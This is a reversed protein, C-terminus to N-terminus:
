SVLTGHRWARFVDITSALRVTVSDGLCRIHTASVVGFALRVPLLM